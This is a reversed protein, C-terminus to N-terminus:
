NEMHLYSLPYFFVKGMSWMIKIDPMNCFIYRKYKKSKKKNEKKKDTVYTVHMKFLECISM